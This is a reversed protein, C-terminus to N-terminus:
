CCLSSLRSAPACCNVRLSRLTVDLPEPGLAAVREPLGQSCIAPPRIPPSRRLGCSRRSRADARRACAQGARREHAAQRDNGSPSRLVRGCDLEMVLFKGRRTVKRIVKGTLAARPRTRIASSCAGAPSNPARLAGAWLKRRWPVPSPKSKPFNRCPSAALGPRRDFYRRRRRARRVDRVKRNPDFDYAGTACDWEWRTGRAFSMTVASKGQGLAAGQRHPCIATSRLRRERWCQLVACRTAM